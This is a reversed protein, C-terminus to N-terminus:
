AQIFAEVSRRFASTSFHDAIFAKANEGLKKRLSPDDYLRKLAAAAADIDPEAWARVGTYCAHDAKAPTIPVLKCPIPIANTANCFETPASYDSVVVPKGFSMAEAIGLGFGEGRHLSLYIDCASTLAYLDKQPLYDNFLVLKDSCGLESALAKLQDVRDPFSKANMTKFVLRADPRDGLGRAFARLAGDPNKRNFSSSFDFNFFVIFDDPSLGFKRRAENQVLTTDPFAFPYIIKHIATRPPYIRQFVETNFDSMAIVVDRKRMPPHDELFGTEFECFGISALTHNALRPAPGAFMEVIHSYQAYAFHDPPTMIGKLDESPVSGIDEGTNFTQFPIGAELLAKAFDRMAKSLSATSTFDAVLTLGHSPHLCPLRRANEALARSIRRQRLAQQIYWRIGGWGLIRAKHLYSFIM